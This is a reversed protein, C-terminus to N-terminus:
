KAQRLRSRVFELYSVLNDTVSNWRRHHWSFRRWERQIHTEKAQANQPIAGTALMVAPDTWFMDPGADPYSLPVKVLLDSASPRYGPGLPFQVFVINIFSGDPVVQLRHEKKLETLERELRPPIAM